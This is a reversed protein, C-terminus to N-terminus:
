RGVYTPRIDGSNMGGAEASQPAVIVASAATLALLSALILTKM